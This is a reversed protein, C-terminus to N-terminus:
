YFDEFIHSFKHSSTKWDYLFFHSIARFDNLILQKCCYDNLVHHSLYLGNIMFFMYSIMLSLKAM